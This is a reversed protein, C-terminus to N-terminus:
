LAIMEKATAPIPAQTNNHLLLILMLARLSSFPGFGRRRVGVDFGHDADIMGAFIARHSDIFALKRHQFALRARAGTRCWGACPRAPVAADRAKSWSTLSRRTRGVASSGTHRTAPKASPAAVAKIPSFAAKAQVAATSSAISSANHRWARAAPRGAIGANFRVTSSKRASSAPGDRRPAPVHRPAPAPSGAASRARDLSPQRRDRYFQRFLDSAKRSWSAIGICITRGAITCIIRRFGAAM